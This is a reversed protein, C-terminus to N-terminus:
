RSDMHQRLRRVEITRLHEAFAALDVCSELPCPALVPATSVEEEAEEESGQRAREACM